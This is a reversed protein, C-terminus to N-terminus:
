RNGSLLAEIMTDVGSFCAAAQARIEEVASDVTYGSFAQIMPLDNFSDGIVFVDEPMKEFSELLARIGSLKGTGNPVVDVCDLNQYACVLQGLTGNVTEQCLQALEASEFKTSIQNVPLSCFLEEGGDLVGFLEKMKDLKKADRCTMYTHEESSVLFHMGSAFVPLNLLARVAGERMTESHLLRLSQDFVMSGTACILFDFPIQFFRIERLIFRPDRGTVIGFLNGEARWREVMYLTNESVVGKQNLTGDYDSALLKM